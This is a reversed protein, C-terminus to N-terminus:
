ILNLLLPLFTIVLWYHKGTHNQISRGEYLYATLLIKYIIRYIYQRMNKEFLWIKPRSLIMLDSNNAYNILSSLKTVDHLKPWTRSSLFTVLHLFTGGISLILLGESGSAKLLEIVHILLKLNAGLLSRSENRGM